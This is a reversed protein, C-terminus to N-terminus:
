KEWGDWVSKAPKMPNGQDPKGYCGQSGAQGYQKYGKGVGGKGVNLAVANGLPVAGMAGMPGANIELGGYRTSGKNTIHNGVRQGLQATGAPLMRSAGERKGTRVPKEVVNRSRPGGGSKAKAM